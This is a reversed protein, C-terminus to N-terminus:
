RQKRNANKQKAEKKQQAEFKVSNLRNRTDQYILEHMETHNPLDKICDHLYDIPYEYGIAKYATNLQAAKILDNANSAAFANYLAEYSVDEHTKPYDRQLYERLHCIARRKGLDNKKSSYYGKSVDKTGFIEAYYNAWIKEIYVEKEERFREPFMETVLYFADVGSLAPEDAFIYKEVSQRLNLKELMDVTLNKCIKAPTDLYYYESLGYKVAYLIKIKDQTTPDKSNITKRIWQRNMLGRDVMHRMYDKDDKTLGDYITRM